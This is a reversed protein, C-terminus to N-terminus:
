RKSNSFEIFSTITDLMLIPFPMKNIHNILAEYNEKLNQKKIMLNKFYNGILLCIM